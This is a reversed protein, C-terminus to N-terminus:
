GNNGRYENRLDEFTEKSSYEYEEAVKILDEIKLDCQIVHVARNPMLRLLAQYTHHGDLLYNDESIIFTKIRHEPNFTEMKNQVKGLDYMSQTPKLSSISVFAPEVAHGGMAVYSIFDPIYNRPIQPMDERDYGKSNEFKILIDEKESM